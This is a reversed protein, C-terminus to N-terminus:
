EVGGETDYFAEYVQDYLGGLTPYSFCEEIPDVSFLEFFEDNACCGGANEGIYIIKGSPNKKHFEM